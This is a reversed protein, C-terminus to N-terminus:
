NMKLGTEVTTEMKDQFKSFTYMGKGAIAQNDVFQCGNVVPSVIGDIDMNFIAGGRLFAENSRFVCNRFSPSSEGKGGYNCVAGGYNGKNNSFTCGEFIPNALGEHRGDNFVAGGDLEAHNNMFQCDNFTPKGIGGRGNVYVSAGDKAYNHQFLCRSITALNEGGSADIYMGGGCREAHASPGNGDATGYEIIFGDILTNKGANKLTVVTFSNDSPDSKSGINGSLISKGAQLNRQLASSEQGSFGGYLRVGSPIEFSKARNNDQTPYYTGRAVWIEDNPQARQLIDALDGSAQAWSSGDGNGKPSVFLTVAWLQISLGCLIGALLVQRM